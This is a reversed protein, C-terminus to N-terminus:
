GGSGFMGSQKAGGALNANFTHFEAQTEHRAAKNLKGQILRNFEEMKTQFFINEGVQSSISGLAGVVSSSDGAGQSVGAQLTEARAIIGQRLTERAERARILRQRRQEFKAATKRHKRARNRSLFSETKAAAQFISAGVSM